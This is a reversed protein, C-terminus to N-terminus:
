SKNPVYNPHYIFKYGKHSKLRGKCVSLCHAPNFGWEKLEKSNWFIICEEHNSAIVYPIGDNMRKLMRQEGFNNKIFHHTGDTLRKSNQAKSLASTLPFTGNQINKQNRERTQQKHSEQLFPHSGDNIKKMANAYAVTPDIGEGGKCINFLQHTKSYQEILRIEEVDMDKIDGEWVIEFKLKGLGFKSLFKRFKWNHTASHGNLHSSKRNSPNVTQGIYLTFPFDENHSLTYIYGKVM